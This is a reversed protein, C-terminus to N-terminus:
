LKQAKCETAEHIRKHHVGNQIIYDCGGISNLKATMENKDKETGSFYYQFISINLEIQRLTKAVRNENFYLIDEPTLKSQNNLINRAMEVSTKAKFLLGSDENNTMDSIIYQLIALHRLYMVALQADYKEYSFSEYRGFADQMTDRVFKVHSNQSDLPDEIHNWSDIVARVVKHQEALNSLENDLKLEEESLSSSLAKYVFGKNQYSNDAIYFVAFLILSLIVIFTLIKSKLSFKVGTSTVEVESSTSPPQTQGNNIEGAM